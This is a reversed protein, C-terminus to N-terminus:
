RCCGGRATKRDSWVRARTVPARFSGIAGDPRPWPGRAPDPLPPPSLIDPFGHRSRFAKSSGHRLLPHRPPLLRASCKHRSGGPKGDGSDDASLKSNSRCSLTALCSACRATHRLGSQKSALRVRKATPAPGYKPATRGSSEPRPLGPPERWMHKNRSRWTAARAPTTHGRM